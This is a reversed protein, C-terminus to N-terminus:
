LSYKSNQTHGIWVHPANSMCSVFNMSLLGTCVNTINIDSRQERQGKFSMSLGDVLNLTLTPGVQMPGMVVTHGTISVVKSVHIDSVHLTHARIRTHLLNLSFQSIQKM